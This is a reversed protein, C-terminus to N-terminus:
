ETTTTNSKAQEILDEMYEKYAKELEDDGFTINKNKSIEILSEYYLSSDNNLKEKALTEKITDKMSDLSEKEKEDTKLIIHYGYSSEVPETSYKNKELKLAANWFNADMDDKNFYGLEGGNEANTDDDSYKKALKAFDEGKDLKKIIDEAKNYAEKKAKEKDEDSMDDTTEVSILIHSAEIDGYVNENYYKEIEDDKINDELYDNVALNRKYELSLKDRLEDESEVGFYAKIAALYSEENDQYYSKIESIQEDISNNEEDDTPYKKDLLKHDIMDILTEISNKKLEEYLNQATIKSGKLAVVTKDDTELKATKGCGTSVTSLAIVAVLTTAIKKKNM